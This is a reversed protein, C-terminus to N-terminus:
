VTKTRMPLELKSFHILAFHKEKFYQWSNALVRGILYVVSLLHLLALLCVINLAIQSM